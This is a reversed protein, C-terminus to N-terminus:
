ARGRRSEAQGAFARRVAAPADSSLLVILHNRARSCAVYLLQNLSEDDLPWSDLEALIVVARELGKFGHITSWAVAQRQEAAGSEGGRSPASRAAAPTALTGDRTAVARRKRPAEAATSATTARPELSDSLVLSGFTPDRWLSSKDRGCPTLVAIEGAPIAEEKTLRELTRALARHLEAPGAYSLVEIPRGPPGHVAPVHAAHYFRMVHRHISQTNRCNITLCHPPEVIPFASTDIYLRQNDDYFIYLIGRNPDRLLETLTVWWETQFDQGEDVVIADFHLEPAREIAALLCEPLVRAFFTEDAQCPTPLTGVHSAMEYCLEHYHAVTLRDHRALAGRLHAALKKNYCTLLTKFGSRALRTAKEAALLTKGSGACGSILARDHRSLLDLIRFQEETLRLQVAQERVIEGWLAPKLEWSKALLGVLLDLVEAQGGARDSAATGRYHAMARGVWREIAATDTRDLVIARPRDPGLWQDGIVVDPFAVAHGICLGAEAAGLRAALEDRLAYASTKAQRFPDKITSVRGAASTSTWSGSRAHFAIAGGKVELVLIGRRPHAIVFDAEGDRRRGHGDLAQWAVSHFVVYDDPLAQGFLVYLEREAPSTTEPAITEPYVVAM